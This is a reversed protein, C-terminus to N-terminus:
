LRVLTIGRFWATWYAPDGDAASATVELGLNGRGAGVEIVAILGAIREDSRVLPQLLEGEVTSAADPEQPRRALSFTFASMQSRPDIRRDSEELDVLVLYNGPPPMPEILQRISFGANGFIPLEDRRELDGLTQGIPLVINSVVMGRSNNKPTFRTGTHWDVDSRFAREVSPASRIPQQRVPSGQLDTRGLRGPDGNGAVVSELVQRGADFRLVREVLQERTRAQPSPRLRDLGRDLFAPPLPSDSGATSDAQLRDAPALGIALAALLAIRVVRGGAADPGNATRRRDNVTHTM